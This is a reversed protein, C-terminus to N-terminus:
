ERGVGLRDRVWEKLEEKEPLQDCKYKRALLMGRGFEKMEKESIVLQWGQPLRSKPFLGLKDVIRKHFISLLGSDVTEIDKYGRSATRDTIDGYGFAISAVLIKGKKKM